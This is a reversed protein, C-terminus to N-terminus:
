AIPGNLTGETVRWVLLSKDVSGASAVWADDASFRVASVHSSHGRFRACRAGKAVCPYNLLRVDGADDGTVVHGRGSSRDVSNIHRAGAKGEEWVGMVPFGVPSNHTHWNFDRVDGKFPKGSPASWHLMEHNACVSRLVRSDGTWDLAVVTTSHGSCTATPTFRGDVNAFLHVRRDAGACALLTSDPSFKVSALRGAPGRDWGVSKNPAGGGGGAQAEAVRALTRADMVVVRGDGLGAALLAGDPSFHLSKGGGSSKTSSVGAGLDRVAFQSRKEVNWLKVWGDEGITACVQPVTPNWAVDNLASGGGAILIRVSTATVEWLDCGDTGVYFKVPGTRTRPSNQAGGAEAEGVKATVGTGSKTGDSPTSSADGAGPGPEAALALSRIMPPPAEPGAPSRLAIEDIKGVVDDGDETLAWTIVRGDAGGTVVVNDEELLLLARIGKTNAVAPQRMSPARGLDEHARILKVLKNAGLDFIALRGDSTGALVRPSKGEGKVPLYVASNVGFAKTDSFSALKGGWIGSTKDKRWVKLHKDGFTLFEGSKSPDPSGDRPGHKASVHAHPNVTVGWVAPVVGQITPVRALPAQDRKNRWAWLTATHKNDAGMSVLVDGTKDFALAVFSRMYGETDAVRALQACPLDVPDRAERRSTWVCVSPRAGDQGTAFTYGDPHRAISRVDDDHGTFFRQRHTARDYVVGLAAVYYVVKGCPTVKLANGISAGPLGNVFDLALSATPEAASRRTIGRAAALWDTPATVGRRCQPYVVKGLFDADNADIFPGKKIAEMGASRGGGMALSRTFVDHPMLGAADVGVRSFIANVEEDSLNKVGLSAWAARFQAHTCKGPHAPGGAHAVFAAAVVDIEKRHQERRKGVADRMKKMASECAWAADPNVPEAVAGGLTSRSPNKPKFRGGPEGHLNSDWMPPRHKHKKDDPLGQPPLPPLTTTLM